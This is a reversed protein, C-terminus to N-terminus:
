GGKDYAGAKARRKASDGVVEAKCNQSEATRELYVECNGDIWCDEIEPTCDLSPCWICKNM